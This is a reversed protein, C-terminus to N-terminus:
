VNKKILLNSEMYRGNYAFTKGTGAIILLLKL